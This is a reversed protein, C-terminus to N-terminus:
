FLTLCPSKLLRPLAEQRACYLSLLLFCTEKESLGFTVLRIFIIFVYIINYHATRGHHVANKCKFVSAKICFFPNQKMLHRKDKIFSM